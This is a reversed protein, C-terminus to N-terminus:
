FIEPYRQYNDVNQKFLQDCNRLFIFNSIKFDFSANGEIIDVMVLGSFKIKNSGKLQDPLAALVAAGLSHGILFVEIIEESGGVIKQIVKAADSVLSEFSFDNSPSSKGHGRMDFTVFCLSPSALQLSKILQFWTQSTYGAGHHFLVLGNQLDGM